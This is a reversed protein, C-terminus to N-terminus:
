NNIVKKYVSQYEIIGKELSFYDVSGQRILDKNFEFKELNDVAEACNFNKVIVGAKFKNIIIDTDGIGENCIIPKCMAMIEGQKTPSSAMKSYVPKIFFIGYDFLSILAPMEYRSGSIIVIDEEKIDKKNASVIINDKVENTIFLFKVNENKNKLFKFFDLMEDLMYWTGISGVYGLILDKEKINYLLKKKAIMSTDVKEPDFFNTDVCCPIVRIKSAENIIDKWSIIEIRAKETLCIIADAFNLFEKEKKKFYKYIIYHIPNNLNWINGDIREDAWFGRMDFIFPINYSKKLTIGVLASIYSRCHVLYYKNKKHLAIAKNRLVYYDYITSFVPPTKSYIIPEWTIDVNQIIQNITNKNNKYAEKKEASLLTIHYGLKSLGLLYPLVQSQGLPDTM